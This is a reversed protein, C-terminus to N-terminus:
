LPNGEEDLKILCISNTSPMNCITQSTGEGDMVKIDSKNIRKKSARHEYGDVREKVVINWLDRIKPVACQFWQTNRPILVCSYEELYWYITKYLVYISRMSDKQLSIWQNIDEKKYNSDIPMYKYIPSNNYPINTPHDTGYGATRQVFHLIIGKYDHKDVNNYFADESDFEKFRTEFFDCENLNCVEMQIQTQIWYEEKPIGTIERNCINKIELMRGYREPCGIDVNIGDPSAGIFSYVTHPICGFDEIQTHFMHEYVLISVPEYKVGWHLTSETNCSGNTVSDHIVLPKCKEYILSNQQSQSAFVKWLNSATILNYRFEYWEKTRQIPQPMVRLEDIRITMTEAYGDSYIGPEISLYAISRKPIGCFEFYLETISSTLEEIDHYDDENCFGVDLWQEYFLYTIENVITKYFDPMSLKIINHNVIYDLEEFIDIMIDSYDDENCQFKIKKKFTNNIDSEYSESGTEYSGTETENIYESDNDHSDM